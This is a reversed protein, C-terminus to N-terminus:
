EDQWRWDPAFPAMAVAMTVGGGAQKKHYLTGGSGLVASRECVNDVGTVSQVFGSASFSGKVAALQAASFTEFAFGHAACFARLGPEDQKLDISCVKYFAEACLGSQALLSAFAQEIARAPTEKKCGVGLVAVRPVLRLAGADASHVTLEFDFADGGVAVGQPPAGKVPWPSRLVATGGALIKASVNKIRPVDVVRCGQRVAWEDVAFVGNADTATTIVPLAGCVAGIRRALRNAGGLHGSLLPVAFCAALLCLSESDAALPRGLALRAFCGAFAAADAKLKDYEIGYLLHTPQVLLEEYGAAALAELAEPLGPVTEGRGDLMRRITPSTYARYFDRGPAGAALAQEVAAIDQRARPVSTGFSVALLAQKM